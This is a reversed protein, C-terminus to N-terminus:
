RSEIPIYKDEKKNGVAKELLKLGVEQVKPNQLVEAAVQNIISEDEFVEDENKKLNILQPAYKRILGSIDDQQPPIELKLKTRTKAEKLKIKSEAEKMLLTREFNIDSRRDKRHSLYIMGFLGGITSILTIIIFEYNM